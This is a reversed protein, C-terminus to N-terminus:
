LHVYPLRHGVVYKHAIFWLVLKKGTFDLITLTTFAQPGPSDNSCEIIFDLINNSNSGEEGVDVERRGFTIWMILTGLSEGNKAARGSGHIISFAFLPCFFPPPRPILSHQMCVTCISQRGLNCLHLLLLWGSTARRGKAGSSAWQGSWKLIAPVPEACWQKSLSVGYHLQCLISYGM